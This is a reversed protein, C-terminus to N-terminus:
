IEADGLDEYLDEDLPDFSEPGESGGQSDLNKLQENLNALVMNEIDEDSAKSYQDPSDGFRNIIRPYITGDEEERIKVLDIYFCWMLLFDFVYLMKDGEEKLMQGVTTSEMLFIAENDAEDSMDFLAIEQGKDWSDNSEYFSAMQSGDFNFAEQIIQHFEEFSQEPTIEIDRFVDKKYDILVRFRYVTTM